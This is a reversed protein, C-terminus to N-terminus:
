KKQTKDFEFLLFKKREHEGVKENSTEISVSLEDVDAELQLPVTAQVTLKKRNPDYKITNFKYTGVEETDVLSFSRTADVLLSGRYVPLVYSKIFLGAKTIRAQSEDQYDFPITLRNAKADFEIQSIDFSMDHIVANIKSLDQINRAEVM